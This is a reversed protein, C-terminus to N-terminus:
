LNDPAGVDLNVCNMEVASFDPLAVQEYGLLTCGYIPVRKNLSTNFLTGLGYYQAIQLEYGFIKATHSNDYYSICIACQSTWLRM